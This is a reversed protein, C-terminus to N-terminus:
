EGPWGTADGDGAATQAQCPEPNALLLPPRFPLASEIRVAVAANRINFPDNRVLRWGSLRGAYQLSGPFRREAAAPM